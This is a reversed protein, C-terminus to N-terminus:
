FYSVAAVYRRGDPGAVRLTADADAALRLTAPDGPQAVARRTRGTTADTVTVQLPGDVARVQVTAAGDRLAILHQDVGRDTIGWVPAGGDSLTAEQDADLPDTLRTLGAGLLADAVSPRRM